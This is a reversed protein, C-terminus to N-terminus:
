WLLSRFGSSSIQNFINRKYYMLSFAEPLLISLSYGCCLNILLSTSWWLPLFHHMFIWCTWHIFWWLATQSKHLLSQPIWWGWWGKESQDWPCWLLPTWSSKMYQYKKHPWWINRINYLHLDNLIDSGQRRQCTQKNEFYTTWKPRRVLYSWCHLM